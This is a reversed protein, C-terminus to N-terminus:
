EMTKRLILPPEFEAPEDVFNLGDV